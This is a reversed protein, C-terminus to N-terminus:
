NTRRFPDASEADVGCYLCRAHRKSMVRGCASCETPTVRVKGDLRGDALDIERVRAELDDETLDTKQQIFSWLAMNILNLQDVRAELDRLAQRTSSANQAATEAAGQARAIRGQQYLEWFM